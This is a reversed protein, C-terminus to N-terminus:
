FRYNLGLLLGSMELDVAGRELELTRWGGALDWHEGLRYSLFGAIFWTRHSSSGIDFGGYDGSVVLGIKETLQARVRAAAVLDVWFSSEDFRSQFPGVPVGPQLKVDLHNDLWFARAGPGIDLAIRREDAAGFLPLSLVEWAPRLEFILEQTTVRVDFSGPPAAPLLAGVPREGDPSVKMYIANSVVSFKGRRAEFAALVGADLVDWIDSFSVDVDASHRDADVTGELGAGWLYPALSFEWEPAAAVDGQARAPAAPASLVLILMSLTLALRLM